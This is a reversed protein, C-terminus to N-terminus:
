CWLTRIARSCSTGYSTQQEKHEGHSFDLLALRAMSFSFNTSGTPLQRTVQWAAFRARELGSAFGPYEAARWSGAGDASAAAVAALEEGGVAYAGAGRIRSQQYYSEALWETASGPNVDAVADAAWHGPFPEGRVAAVLKLLALVLRRLNGRQGPALEKALDVLVPEVQDVRGLSLLLAARYIREQPSLQATNTRETAAYQEWAEKLKGARYAQLSASLAEPERGGEWPLDELHLVAPYHLIWQIERRLAAVSTLTIPVGVIGQASVAVQKVDGPRSRIETMGEQITGNPLTVVWQTNPQDWRLHLDTGTMLILKETGDPLAIVVHNTVGEQGRSWSYLSGISSARPTPETPQNTIVILGLQDLFVILRDNGLRVNTLNFTQVKSGNEVPTGPLPPPHRDSDPLIILVKPHADQIVFNKSGIGHPMTRSEKVQSLIWDLNADKDAAFLRPVFHGVPCSDINGM